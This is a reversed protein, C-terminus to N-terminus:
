FWLSRNKSFINEDELYLPSVSGFKREDHIAQGAHRPAAARSNKQNGRGAANKNEGGDILSM